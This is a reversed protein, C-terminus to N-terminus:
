GKGGLAYMQRLDLGSIGVVGKIWAGSKESSDGSWNGGKGCGGGLGPSMMEVAVRSGLGMQGGAVRSGLGM